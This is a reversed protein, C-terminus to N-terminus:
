KDGELLDIVGNIHTGRNSITRGNTGEVTTPHCAACNVDTNGQPDTLRHCAGCASADGSTDYWNPEKLTGGQLTAGHCYVNACTEGTWTPQAGNLAALFKFEVEPRHDGDIHGAEWTGLPVSHCNSCNVRHAEIEAHRMPWHAGVGIKEVSCEGELNQPPSAGLNWGHCSTCGVTVNVEGNNHLDATVFAYDEDIVQGHCRYCRHNLPHRATEPPAGHCADCAEPVTMTAYGCDDFEEPTGDDAGQDNDDDDDEACGPLWLAALLLGLLLVCVGRAPVTFRGYSLHFSFM